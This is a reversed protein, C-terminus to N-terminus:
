SLGVEYTIRSAVQSGTGSSTFRVALFDDAHSVGAEPCAWGNAWIPGDAGGVLAGNLILQMETDVNSSDGFSHLVTEVFGNTAEMTVRVLDVLAGAGFKVRAALNLVRGDPSCVPVLARAVQSAGTAVYGFGTTGLLGFSENYFQAAHVVGRELAGIPVRYDRLHTSVSFTSAFAAPIFVAAWKAYGSPIAPEVATGAAANAGKVVQKTLAVARQKNVSASSLVGTTADKFDRSESSGEVQDLKICVIDWRDLTADAADHNTLLEDDALYYLLARPDDGNVASTSPLQAVVGARNSSRLATATTKIGAGAGLAYCKGDTNAIAVGSAVRMRQRILLDNVHAQLFRQANNLDNHDLGEGDNFLVTKAISM